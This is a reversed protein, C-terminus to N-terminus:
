RAKTLNFDENIDATFCSYNNYKYSYQPFKPPLLIFHKQVAGRM